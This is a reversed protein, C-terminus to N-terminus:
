KQAVVIINKGIPPPALSEIRRVIPVIFQDYFKVAGPELSESKLFRYKLWWPVIGPFDFYTSRVIRFGARRLKEELETKTYRRVHGVQEDRSGYLWRLAPVFLFIHGGESLMEWVASLEREDQAIHELVNIYMVSDVVNQSKILPAAELFSAHHLNVKIKTSLERVRTALLEYLDESPEILSLTKFKHEGIILESFSGAGAGVEVINQGLYPMFIRLIWRHYNVAWSMVELDRGPYSFEKHAPALMTCFSALVLVELSFHWDSASYDCLPETLNASRLYRENQVYM